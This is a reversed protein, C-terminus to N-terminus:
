MNAEAFNKIVILVKGLGLEFCAAMMLATKGSGTPMSILSAIEKSSTTLHSKLAWIAGLQCERLGNGNEPELEFYNKNDIFYSM